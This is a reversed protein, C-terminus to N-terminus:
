QDRWRMVMVLPECSGPPAQLYGQVRLRGFGPCTPWVARTKTHHHVTKFTAPATGCVGLTISDTGIALADCPSEVGEFPLGLPDVLPSYSGPPCRPHALAGGGLLITAAFSVIGLM